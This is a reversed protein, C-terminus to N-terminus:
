PSLPVHISTNKTIIGGRNGIEISGYREAFSIPLPRDDPLSLWLRLLHRKKDNEEWDIYATRDHLISHNYVFQIDGPLFKMKLHIKNDNSIEDFRDLALRHEKSLKIAQKYTQASEIYPRHYVGTLKDKYWHLVPLNYFPKGGIPIEGRRDRSFPQFLYKLLHPYKKKFQNYITITSCLMSVGGSKAEKLCLLSVADSSDTHFHQREKTQYVRVNKDKLNLGLDKVHGLLHGKANQSRLSGIYAGIGLYITALEKMEYKEIPLGRLLKFGIGNKLEERLNIFYSSLTPLNFNNVNIKSLDNKTKLFKFSANELELIEKKEFTKIWINQNKHLYEGKWSIPLSSLDPIKNIM